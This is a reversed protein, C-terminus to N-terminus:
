LLHLLPAHKPGCMILLDKDVPCGQCFINYDQNNISGDVFSPAPKHNRNDNKLSSL